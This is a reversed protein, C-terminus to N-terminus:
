LMEALVAPDGTQIRLRRAQRPMVVYMSGLLGVGIVVCQLLLMAGVSGAALHKFPYAILNGALSVLLAWGWTTLGLMVAQWFGYHAPVTLGHRAFGRRTMYGLIPLSLVVVTTSVILLLLIGLGLAGNTSLTSMFTGHRTSLYAVFVLVCAGLWIPLTALSVRWFCSWWVALRKFFSM